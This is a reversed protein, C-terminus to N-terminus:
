VALVLESFYLEGVSTSRQDPSPRPLDPTDAMIQGRTRGDGTGVVTDAVATLTAWVAVGRTTLSAM